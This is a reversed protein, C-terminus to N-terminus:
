GFVVELLALSICIILVALSYLVADLSDIM